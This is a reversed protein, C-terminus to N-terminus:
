TSLKDKGRNNTIYLILKIIQIFSKAENDIEQHINANHILIYKYM